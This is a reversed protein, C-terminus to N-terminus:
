QMPGTITNAQAQTIQGVSTNGWINQGLIYTPNSVSNTVANNITIVNSVVSYQVNLAMQTTYFLGPATYRRNYVNRTWGIRLENVKNQSLTSTWGLAILETDLPYQSGQNPFM